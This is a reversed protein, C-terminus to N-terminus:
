LADLYEDVAAMEAEFRPLLAALAEIQGAKGAQEIEVCLEGLALAGVSRASSKLKHALAGV